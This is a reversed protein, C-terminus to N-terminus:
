RRRRVDAVHAELEQARHEATHERLVRARAAAAMADRRDDGVEELIALVDDTTRVVFIEEDPVFFHDLGEWPDSIIPVGCAAAEFLRV